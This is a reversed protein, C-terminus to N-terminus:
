SCNLLTFTTEGSMGSWKFYNLLALRYNLSNLVIELYLTIILNVPQSLLQYPLVIKGDYLHQTTSFKERDGGKMGINLKEM